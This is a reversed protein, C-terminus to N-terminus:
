DNTVELLLKLTTDCEIKNGVIKADYCIPPQLVKIKFQYNDSVPLSINRVEIDEQYRFRKIAVKTRKNEDYLYWVSVAFSGRISCNDEYVYQHDTVYTGIIRSPDEEPVLVDTVMIIKGGKKIVKLTANENKIKLKM